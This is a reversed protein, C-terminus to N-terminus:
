AGGIIPSDFSATDLKWLHFYNPLTKINSRPFQNKEARLFVREVIAVVM